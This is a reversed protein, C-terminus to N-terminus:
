SKTMKYTGSATCQDESAGGQSTWTGTMTSGDLTGKLDLVNQFPGPATAVHLTFIGGSFTSSLTNGIFCSNSPIAFNTADVNQPSTQNLTVTFGFNVPVNSVAEAGTLTAAWNGNITGPKGGGCASLFVLSLLLAFRIRSL